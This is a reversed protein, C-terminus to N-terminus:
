VSFLEVIKDSLGELAPINEGRISRGDRGRAFYSYTETGYFGLDVYVDDGEWLFNIEGDHALSVEPMPILSLPLREIFTRADAFAQDDPWVADPWREVEPTRRHAELNATLRYVPAHDLRSVLTGKLGDRATEPVMAGHAFDTDFGFSRTTTVPAPEMKWLACVTESVFMHPDMTTDNM